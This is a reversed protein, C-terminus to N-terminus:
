RALKMRLGFALGAVVTAAALALSISRHFATSASSLGADGTNPPSIGTGVVVVGAMGQDAHLVCLYTYTGAKTFTLAFSTGATAEPGTGVFGSNVYGTGAYQGGAPVVPFLVQPNLVLQPPGGAQPKPTILEPTAAGSTLTITHPVGTTNNWTVKDGVAIEIRAPLFRMVDTQGVSPGTVVTNKAPQIAAIAAEGRAIGQDLLTQAEADRQAQTPVNVGARLVQVNGTMGAHIACIFRYSGEKPFAVTFAQGKALIGSNVFSTGDYSAAGTAPSAFGVQPNVIITPPGAVPAPGPAPMVFAPDPQGPIPFTVTHIEEYPNTFEVTDGVNVFIVSPLFANVSIGARGGGAFDTYKVAAGTTSVHGVAFAGALTAVGVVAALAALRTNRRLLELKRM